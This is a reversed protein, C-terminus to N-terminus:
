PSSEVLHLAVPTALLVPLASYIALWAVGEKSATFYPRGLGIALAAAFAFLTLVTVFWLTATKRLFVLRRYQSSLLLLNHSLAGALGVVFGLGVFVVSGHEGNLAAATIGVLASSAIWFVCAGLGQRWSYGSSTSEFETSFPM